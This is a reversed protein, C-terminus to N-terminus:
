QAKVQNYVGNKKTPDPKKTSLSLKETLHVISENQNGMENGRVSRKPQTERLQHFSPNALRSKREYMTKQRSEYFSFDDLISTVASYYKFIKLMEIGQSFTVEQTDRSYTVAKNENDKLIIHTLLHNPVDKVIHWKVPFFGNWVDGQWFDLTKKFDVKCTMEALGVFQGSGNVSFFLFVPCRSGNDNLKAQAGHFAEDLKKNGFDTSAWVNYKLSKHVDDESFSKIVYFLAAEYNTPFDLLNYLDRKILPNELVPSEKPRNSRLGRKLEDLAGIRNFRENRTWGGQNPRFYIPGEQPIFNGKGQPLHSSFNGAARIFKKKFSSSNFDNGCSPVSYPSEQGDLYYGALSCYGNPGDYGRYDYGYGNTAPYHMGNEAFCKDDVGNEKISSTADRAPYADSSRGDVNQEPSKVCSIGSSDRNKIEIDSFIDIFSFM